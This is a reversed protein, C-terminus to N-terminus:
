SKSKIFIVRLIKLARTSFFIVLVELTLFSINRLIALPLGGTSYSFYGRSFFNIVYLSTALIIWGYVFYEGQREVEKKGLWRVLEKHFAYIVLVGLYFININASPFLGRTFFEILAMAMAAVTIVGCIKYLNKNIAREINKLDKFQNTKRM